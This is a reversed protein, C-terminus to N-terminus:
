PANIWEPKVGGRKGCKDCRGKFVFTVPRTDLGGEGAHQLIFTLSKIDGALAAKVHVEIIKKKDEASTARLRDRFTRKM